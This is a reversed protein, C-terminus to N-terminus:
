RRRYGVYRALAFDDKRGGGGVAVIRDRSALLASAAEDDGGLNTIVKGNRSLSRDLSGSPWYRALAFNDDSRPAETSGVAVIRRHSDIAV